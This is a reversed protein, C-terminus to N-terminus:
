SELRNQFRRSGTFEFKMKQTVRQLDLILEELCGIRKQYLDEQKEINKLKPVSWEAYCLLVDYKEIIAKDTDKIARRLSAQSRNIEQSIEKIWQAKNSM